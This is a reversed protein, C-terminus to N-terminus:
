LNEGGEVDETQSNKWAEFIVRGRSGPFAGIFAGQDDGVRGVSVLDGDQRLVLAGGFEDSYETTLGEPMSTFQKSEMKELSM